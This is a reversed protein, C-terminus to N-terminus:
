LQAWHTLNLELIQAQGSRIAVKFETNMLNM